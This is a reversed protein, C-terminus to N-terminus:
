LLDILYRKLCRKAVSLFCVWTLVYALTGFDWPQLILALAFGAAPPHETNTVVMLLSAVGVTIAGVLFTELALTQPAQTKFALTALIGALAGMTYGGIVYRARTSVRHPMTFIMFTTAGLAAVIGHYKILHLFSLFAMTM